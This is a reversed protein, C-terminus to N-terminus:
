YELVRVMSRALFFAISVFNWDNSL